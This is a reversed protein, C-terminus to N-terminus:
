ASVRKALAVVDGNAKLWHPAFFAAQAKEITTALFIDNPVIDRGGVRIPKLDIDAVLDVLHEARTQNTTIMLVRFVPTTVGYKEAIAGDGLMSWYNRYKGAITNPERNADKSILTETGMDIELEDAFTAEGRAMINAADSKMRRGISPEFATPARLGGWNAFEAVQDIISANALSSADREAALLMDRTVNNHNFNPRWRAADPQRVWPGLAEIPDVDPWYDEACEVLYDYGAKTLAYLHMDAGAAGENSLKVTKITARVSKALGPLMRKKVHDGPVLGAHLAYTRPTIPGWRWVALLGNARSNDSFQRGFVKKNKGCFASKAVDKHEDM